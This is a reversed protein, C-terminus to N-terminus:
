DMRCAIIVYLMRHTRHMRNLLHLLHACRQHMRDLFPSLCLRKAKTQIGLSSACSSPSRCRARKFTHHERSIGTKLLLPYTLEALFDSVRSSRSADGHVGNDGKHEMHKQVFAIQLFPWTSCSLSLIFSLTRDGPLPAQRLKACKQLTVVLRCETGLRICVAKKAHNTSREPCGRLKEVLAVPLQHPNKPSAM